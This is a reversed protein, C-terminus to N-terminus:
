NCLYREKLIDFLLNDLIFNFNVNSMQKKYAEDILPVIHAIANNSYLKKLQELRGGYKKKGTLITLFIDQMCSFFINKDIVEIGSVARPIDATTSISLLLNFISDITASYVENNALNVAETLSIDNTPYNSIDIGDKQFESAIIKKDEEDPTPIFVKNLRSLVTPLLKDTKNTTLIFISSPTPEELSKLLKNQAIENITDADLLVFIKNQSYIPKTLLQNVIKAVDEVKVSPQKIINADPHSRNDFQKCANCDGCINGTECVLSKAYTLAVAENHLADSSYFLYAHHKGLNLNNYIKTNKLSIM